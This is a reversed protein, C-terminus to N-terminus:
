GVEVRHFSVFISKCGVRGGSQSFQCFMSKCGVWFGNETFVSLVGIQLRGLNVRQSFQCFVLKCDLGGGTETFVSLLLRSEM